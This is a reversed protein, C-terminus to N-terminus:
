ALGVHLRVYTQRCHGGDSGSLFDHLLQPASRDCGVAVAPLRLVRSFPGVVQSGTGGTAVVEAHYPPTSPELGSSPEAFTGCLPNQLESSTAGHRVHPPYPARQSAKVEAPADDYPRFRACDGCLADAGYSNPPLSRMCRRTSRARSRARSGASSGSLSPAKISGPSRLGHCGSAFGGGGFLGSDLRIRQWRNRAM